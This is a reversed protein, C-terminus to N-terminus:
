VKRETLQKSGGLRVKEAKFGYAHFIIIVTLLNNIANVSTIVLM